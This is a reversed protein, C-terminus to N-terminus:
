KRVQNIAFSDIHERYKRLMLFTSRLKQAAIQDRNQGFRASRSYLFERESMEVTHICDEIDVEVKGLKEAIWGSTLFIFPKSEAPTEKAPFNPRSQTETALEEFWQSKELQRLEFGTGCDIVTYDARLTELFSDIEKDQSVPYCTLITPLGRAIRGRVVEVLFAVQEASNSHSSVQFGFDDLLLFDVQFLAGILAPLRDDGSFEYANLVEDVDRDNLGAITSGAERRANLLAYAFGTKGTGVGGQVITVIPPKDSFQKAFESLSDVIHHNSPV